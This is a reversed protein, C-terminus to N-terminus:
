FTSYKKRYFTNKIYLSLFHFRSYPFFRFYLKPFHDTFMKKSITMILCILITFSFLFTPVYDSFTNFPHLPMRYTALKKISYCSSHDQKDGPTDRKPQM